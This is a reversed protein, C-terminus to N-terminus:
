TGDGDAATPPAAPAAADEDATGAAPEGAGLHELIDAPEARRFGEAGPPPDLRIYAKEELEDLYGAMREAFASQTAVDRVQDAIEAFPRVGAERRDVVELIHLGGRSDVPQSLDGPGLEWVASELEAALDGPGVWGHDIVDSTLGRDRYTAVVEALPRGAALERRIAAALEARDAASQGEVELVIVERVQLRQPETFRGANDRYYRRALEEDVAIESRVERQVVDQIRMNVGLQERFERLTLGSQGLATEFEARDAFGYRQQLSDLQEEIQEESFVVGMQDARSLLLSEQYLDAFVREPLSAALQRREALPLESRRLLEREAEALRVQYDYLTAIRDNVRLVVKNVVPATSAAAPPSASQAAAPLALVLAALAAPLRRDM